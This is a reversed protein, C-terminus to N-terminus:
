FLDDGRAHEHLALGMEHICTVAGKTFGQNIMASIADARRNKLV